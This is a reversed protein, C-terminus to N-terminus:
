RDIYRTAWAKPMRWRLQSPSGFFSSSPTFRSPNLMVKPRVNPVISLNEELRAEVGGPLRLSIVKPLLFGAFILGLLVPTLTMVMTTTVESWWLFNVWTALLVLAVIFIVVPAAVAPGVLPSKGLLEVARGAERKGAEDHHYEKSRKFHCRASKRHRSQGFASSAQSALRQEAVGAVFYSEPDNKNRQIAKKAAEQAEGYFPTMSAEGEASESVADGDEVLVRALAQHLKATSDSVTDGVQIATYLTDEAAKLDGRSRVLAVALGLAAEGKENRNATSMRARRFHWAAAEADESSESRELCLQGLEIRVSADNENLEKARELSELSEKYLGMMRYLSGLAFHGSSFPALEVVKKFSQEAAACDGDRFKIVGQWSHALPALPDNPARDLFDAIRRRLGSDVDCNSNEERSDSKKERASVWASGLWYKYEHMPDQERAKKFQRDAKRYDGQEFAVWGLQELAEGKEEASESHNELLDELRIEAKRFHDLEPHAIGRELEIMGQEVLFPRYHARELHGGMFRQAEDLLGLGRLASSKGIIAPEFQPNLALADDYSKLAEGPRCLSDLLQALVTHADVSRRHEAVVKRAEEEATKFEQLEKLIQIYDSLVKPHVPNESFAKEAHERAEEYKGEGRLVDCLASRQPLDDPLEQIAKYGNKEAEEWRQRMALFQTKTSWAWRHPKKENAIAENVERMADGHRGRDSLVWALMVHADTSDPLQSMIRAAEEAEEWRRMYRLQAAQAQLAEKSNPDIGSAKEFERLADEAYDQESLVWGRAVRLGADRPYMAVAEDAAGEADTWRCLAVLAAIKGRLARINYRDVGLAWEYAELAEEHRGQDAYKDGPELVM